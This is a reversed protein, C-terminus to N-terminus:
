KNNDKERELAEKGRQREFGNMNGPVNQLDLELKNQQDAAIEMIESM